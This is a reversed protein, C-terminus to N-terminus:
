TVEAQGSAFFTFTFYSNKKLYKTPFFDAVKELAVEEEEEYKDVAALRDRVAGELQTGYQSAKIEKIVVVKIVAEVPAANELNDWELFNFWVLMSITIDHENFFYM